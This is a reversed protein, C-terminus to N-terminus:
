SPDPIPPAPIEFANLLASTALYMGVLHVLDLVGDRGFTEEAAAYTEPTVRHTRVLEDAFRHAALEDPAFGETSGARLGAIVTESLGVSRAAAVHAYVEYDAQWAVGVTLIVVERIPAALSSQQQDAAIWRNFARGPGPRLVFANFPGLLGGRDDTAAFGSREAWVAGREVIRDRVARQDDDLDLSENRPLRGGWDRDDAGPHETITM